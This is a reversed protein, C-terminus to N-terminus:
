KVCLSACLGTAEIAKVKVNCGHRVFRVIGHAGDANFFQYQVDTDTLAAISQCTRGLHEFLERLLLGHERFSAQRYSGEADAAILLDSTVHGHAALFSFFNKLFTELDLLVLEALFVECLVAAETETDRLMNVKADLVVRARADVSHVEVHVQGSRAAAHLVALNATTADAERVTQCAIVAHLPELRFKVADDKRSRRGLLYWIRRDDM